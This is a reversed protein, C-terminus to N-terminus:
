FSSYTPKFSRESPTYSVSSVFPTYSRTESASAFTYGAALTPLRIDQGCTCTMPTNKGAGYLGLDGAVFHSSRLSHTEEPQAPPVAVALSPIEVQAIQQFALREFEDPRPALDRREASNFSPCSVKHGQHEPLRALMKAVEVFAPHYLLSDLSM